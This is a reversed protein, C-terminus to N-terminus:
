PMKSLLKDLCYVTIIYLPAGLLYLIRWVITSIITNYVVSSRYGYAIASILDKNLVIDILFLIFTISAILGYYVLVNKLVALFGGRCLSRMWLYYLLSPLLIATVVFLTEYKLLQPFPLLQIYYAEFPTTFFIVINISPITFLIYLVISGLIAEKISGVHAKFVTITSGTIIFGVTYVIISLIYFLLYGLCIHIICSIFGAIILVLGIYLTKVRFMTEEIYVTNKAKFRQLFEYLYRGDDNLMYRGFEDKSIFDRLIKLHYNLHGTSKINLEKLLESYELPGKEALLKIIRRRLPDKLIRLVSDLNAM